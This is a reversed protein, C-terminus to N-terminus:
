DKKKKEKILDEMEDFQRNVYRMVISVALTATGVGSLIFGGWALVLSTLKGLVMTGSAEFSNSTFANSVMTMSDLPSVGESLITSLFSILIITYLLLITIGLGNNETYKVFKRYYVEAFYVYGIIHFIDLLAALTFGFIMQNISAFPILLFLILKEKFSDKGRNITLYISILIDLVFINSDKWDFILYLCIVIFVLIMILYFAQKLSSVEELPFYEQLNSFRSNKFSPSSKLKKVLFKTARVLVVFIGLALLIQFIFFVIEVVIDM